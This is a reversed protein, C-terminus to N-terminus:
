RDHGLLVRIHEAIKIRDGRSLRAGSLHQPAIASRSGIKGRLILNRKETKLEVVPECFLRLTAFGIVVILQPDLLEVFTELRAKCFDFTRNRLEEPLGKYTKLDPSRLFIANLAVTQALFDTPFMRRMAHALTWDKDAYDCVSGSWTDYREGPEAEDGGPQYGIWLVPPKPFPPGYLIRYWCDHNEEILTPRIETYFDSTEQYLQTVYTELENVWRCKKGSEPLFNVLVGARM